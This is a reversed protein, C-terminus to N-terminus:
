PLLVAVPVLVDREAEGDRHVRLTTAAKGAMADAHDARTM